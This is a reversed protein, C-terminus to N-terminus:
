VFTAPPPYAARPRLQPARKHAVRRHRKQAAVTAGSEMLVELWIGFRHADLQEDRGPRDGRWLDLDFVRM